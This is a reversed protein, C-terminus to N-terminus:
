EQDFVQNDYFGKEIANLFFAIDEESVPCYNHADIGIDLGIKKVLQRGHIHGYLAYEGKELKNGSIPEHRLSCKFGGVEIKCEDNDYVTVNDIKKIDKLVEPLKDREYNGTIFHCNKFNLGKLYDASEGFDGLIYLDDNISVRKNINSIIALDMDKTTKFPRKSFTMTREQSFHLDSTFWRRGGENLKSVAAALTDELTDFVPIGRKEAHIRVYRNPSMTNESPMNVFINPCDFYNGAEFCTTFGPHKESRDFNFVIASARHMAEWEWDTQNKLFDPNDPNYCDNTPTIVYGEFCLNELIEFAKTRWDNNAYDSRPCPGALFIANKAESLDTWPSTKSTQPKIIKLGKYGDKKAERFIKDYDM